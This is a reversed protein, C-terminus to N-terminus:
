IYQVFWDQKESYGGSKPSTQELLFGDFRLFCYSKWFRCSARVIDLIFHSIMFSLGQYLTM